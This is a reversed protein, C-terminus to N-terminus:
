AADKLVALAKRKKEVAPNVLGSRLYWYIMKFCDGHPKRWTTRFRDINWCYRMQIFHAVEHAIMVMLHDDNDVVEIDGIVRNNAYSDYERHVRNGMQWYSLNILILHAGARSPTGRSRKVVQLVELAKLHADKPLNLMYDEDYLHKVCKTVLDRVQKLEGMTYETAVRRM